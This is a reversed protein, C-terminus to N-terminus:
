TAETTSYHYLAKFLQHLFICYISSHYSVSMFYVYVYSIFVSHQLLIFFDNLKFNLFSNQKRKTKKRKKKKLEFYLFYM